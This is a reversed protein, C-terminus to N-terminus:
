LPCELSFLRQLRWLLLPLLPVRGHGFLVRLLHDTAVQGRLEALIRFGFLLVACLVSVLVLVALLVSPAVPLGSFPGPVIVISTHVPIVQDLRQSM